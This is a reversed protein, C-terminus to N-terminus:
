KPSWYKAREEQRYKENPSKKAPSQGKKIRREWAAGSAVPEGEVNFGRQGEGEHGKKQGASAGSSRVVKRAVKERGSIMGGASGVEMVRGASHREARRRERNRTFVDMQEDLVGTQGEARGFEGTGGFVRDARRRERNTAFAQIGQGTVGPIAMKGRAFEGPERIPLASKNRIVSSLILPSARRDVPEPTVPRFDGVSPKRRLPISAWSRVRETQIPRPTSPKFPFPSPARDIEPELREREELEKQSMPQEMTSGINFSSERSLPPSSMTSTSTSTACCSTTKHKQRTHFVIQHTIDDRSHSQRPGSEFMSSRESRDRGNSHEFPHKSVSSPKSKARIYSHGVDSDLLSCQRSKEECLRYNVNSESVSSPKTSREEGLRVIAELSASLGPSRGEIMFLESDEYVGDESHSERPLGSNTGKEDKSAGKRGCFLKRFSGFRLGKGSASKNLHEVSEKNLAQCPKDYLCDRLKPQEFPAGSRSSRPKLSSKINFKSTQTTNTKPKYANVDLRPRDVIGGGIFSVMSRTEPSEFDVAIAEECGLLWAEVLRVSRQILFDPPNLDSGSLDPGPESATTAKKTKSATNNKSRDRKKKWMRRKGRRSASESVGASGSEEWREKSNRSM